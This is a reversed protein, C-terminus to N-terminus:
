QNLGISEKGNRSAAAALNAPNVNTSVGHVSGDGMVFNVVNTHQSGFSADNVTDCDGGSCIPYGNLPDAVRLVQGVTTTGNCGGGNGGAWLPFRSNNNNDYNVNVSSTCEGIMLTNSTGDKVDTMKVVYTNNNENSFLLMGNQKSGYVGGCGFSSAGWRATNGMNGVYNTKGFGNGKNAPLIDAPCMFVNITSNVAAIGDPRLINQNTVDCGYSANGGNLNDINPQGPFGSGGNTGGGMKPPVWMAYTSNGGGTTLTKYLPDQEVYPLLFAGWGWNQNDDNYQGVPFHQFNDHFSHMAIGLQKLNNTCSMRAAAERVKQVAPLLLGILIAIIAIVVLLEILTFASRHKGRSLSM